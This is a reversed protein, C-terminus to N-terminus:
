EILGGAAPAPMGLEDLENGPDTYASAYSYYRYLGEAKVENLVAGHTRVPLQRLLELKLGAMRLDSRGHRLVIVANGCATALAFADIGASLPPSDIVIADYERRAMALLQPLAASAIVEPNRRSRGGCPILTLRRDSTPRAVEHLTAAGTLCEILGPRRDADFLTHLAGRRTDGDILLTRYGAEALSLALNASIMSKGDGENASTVTCLIPEGPPHAQQLRLRIGRFSEVIQAAAEAQDRRRAPLLTPVTGLIPLRLRSTVQEPFRFRHDLRDLLLAIAIALGLGGLIGMGLIRYKTDAIPEDPPSAMDLTTVDPVSSAEALKAEEYRSQLSTFLAEAGTVARRLRMEEITRTPIGRIEKSAADIRAGLDNERQQMSALLDTAADPVTRTRLAQIDAKLKKITPHEDTYLREDTRLEAEKTYLDSLVSNLTQAGPTTTLGPISSLEEAGIRGARIGTLMNELATRDRKLNDYEIKKAFFSDFVPDRTQELGPGPGVSTNESPQTIANVRFTELAIEASRLNRNAYDLQDQLIRSFETLNRRKLEAATEVFEKVWLNLIEATQVPDSGTLRLRLFNSGLQQEASVRGLLRGSADRPTTVAFRVSEGRHLQSADPRWLMGRTRGISDGVAGREVVLGKKDLLSYKTGSSDIKLTYAGPRLQMAVGFTSFLPANDRDEPTVYLRMRLVVSDVITFSRFLESWSTSALLEEARIPGTGGRGSPPADAAIWITARTEYQPKVFRTAVYGLGGGVITLLVLLWKYRRLAHLYRLISVGEEEQPQQPPAPEWAMPATAAAALSSPEIPPVPTLDSPM